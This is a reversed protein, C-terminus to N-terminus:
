RRVVRLEPPETLWQEPIPLPIKLTKRHAIAWLMLDRSSGGPAGMKRLLVSIYYRLTGHAIGLAYAIEKPSRYQPDLLARLISIERGTVVPPAPPRPRLHECKASRCRFCYIREYKM